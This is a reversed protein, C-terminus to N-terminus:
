CLIQENPAEHFPNGHGLVRRLDGHAIGLTPQPPTFSASTPSQLLPFANEPTIFLAEGDPLGVSLDLKASALLVRDAGICLALHLTQHLFFLPRPSNKM